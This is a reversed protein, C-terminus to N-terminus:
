RRKSGARHSGKRRTSSSTRPRGSEPADGSAAPTWVVSAHTRVLEAVWASQQRVFDDLSLQGAAIRDLAQEWLATTGPDAIAAPIAQLLAHATGSARLTRGQKILYGRTMLGSIIGARTAETGIGTTEKLKQKLQPDTVWRGIGKMAKILEGQTFHRPPLTKLAKLELNAVGCDVGVRLAPLTQHDDSADEADDSADRDSLVSRWGNQVIAKGRAQLALNGCHLQVRTQDYEHDPLFQALYHARILQYVAREDQSLVRLEPAQITPILAHHATVKDDNWARSRETPNLKGCARTLTPDADFLAKLVAPAEAHMNQPLHRSDSRPYTIAKHTEYLSQAVTLTRQVDMGFQRSCTEQLTSLDFPLAPAERIRETEVSDVRATRARHLQALADQAVAEYICRGAEDISDRPAQWRATFSQGGAQLMVEITWYAVPEFAGIERDRQVVLRL